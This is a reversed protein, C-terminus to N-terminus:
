TRGQLACPMGKTDFLYLAGTCWHAALMVYPHLGYEGGSYNTLLNWDKQVKIFSSNSNNLEAVGRNRNIRLLDSFKIVTASRPVDKTEADMCAAATTHSSGLVILTPCSNAPQEGYSEMITGVGQTISRKIVRDDDILTQLTDMDFPHRAPNFKLAEPLQQELGQDLEDVLVLLVGQGGAAKHMAGQLM